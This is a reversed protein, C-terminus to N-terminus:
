KERGTISEVVQVAHDRAQRVDSETGSIFLRGYAGSQSYHILTINAAKEAENAALVVYAAPTVEIVCLTQRALLLGGMSKVNIMQAEFPDISTTLKASVVRPKLRDTERMQLEELVCDGAVRVAEQHESHIEMTGYEREITLYGPRVNTAKVAVDMVRYVDSAPALEVYLQAMGEVPIMGETRKGTYAAYQPQMRDILVYTRLQM